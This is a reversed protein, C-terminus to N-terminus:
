QTVAWAELAEAAQQPDGSAEELAGRLQGLVLPAKWVRGDTGRAGDAGDRGDRGTHGDTGDPRTPQNGGIGSCGSGGRGGAGGPGGRGGQGGEGGFGGEVSTYVANQRYSLLVVHGGNSGDGGPSGDGGDGGNGGSGGAKSSRFQGLAGPGCRGSRGDGGRPGPNGDTGHQGALGDGGRATATTGTVTEAALMIKGGPRGETGDAILTGGEIDRAILRLDPGRLWSRADFTIREAFLVLPHDVELQVNEFHIWGAKLVTKGGLNGAAEADILLTGGLDTLREDPPINTAEPPCKKQELARNWGVSTAEIRATLPPYSPHSRQATLEIAAQAEHVTGGMQCIIFGSFDDAALEQQKRDVEDTLPDGNLHHGVEHALIGRVAWESGNSTSIKSFFSSSYFLKRQKGCIIAAASGVNAAKIDFGEAKLGSLRTIEGVLATIRQSPEFEFLDHIEEGTFSKCSNIEQAVASISSIASLLFTLAILLSSIRKM